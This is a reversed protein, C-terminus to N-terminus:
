ARQGPRETRSPSKESSLRRVVREFEVEIAGVLMAVDPAAGRSLASEVRRCLDAARRAGISGSSGKLKHAHAKMAASDGREVAARLGRVSEGASKAYEVIIQDIAAPDETLERLSAIVKSDIPDTWQALVRILDPIKVPKSIYDDMGAALCRERDGEMANATMAIVPTRTEAGERRRLEGTAEYGDMEPMQCDMLILAYPVRAAAELAELGDAACDSEVGIKRLQLTAVRQNVSNDEVVLVRLGSSQADFAHASQAGVPTSKRGKSFLSYLTEFFGAQRVPKTLCAAVGNESLVEPTPRHDLSTMVLIPTGSCAPDNKLERSLEFGDRGPMQMDTLVVGYKRGEAARRRVLSLAADVGDAEDCTMKWAALQRRVIERNTANDDVVLAHVGALEATTSAPLANACKVFPLRCWFTSGQGVASRLGIEGGMLEVLRKSIALGLGTGGFRRTTSADAQTFAQFLRAQVEEAIGIGTDKIEFLIQVQESSEGVKTAKLVVEGRETFKVANTLLNTLVQRIRGPDGVVHSRLDESLCAVLELGKSQARLAVLQASEELLDRVSFDVRELTLKGSEIKSFDLIDNIVCLLTEGANHITRAFEAQEADLKTGMLLGTMGIVANMPTRIEHSMNALFDSKAKALQVADANAKVLQERSLRLEFTRDMVAQEFTMNIKELKAQRRASDLMEALGRRISLWLFADEFLVWAAHELTRWWPAWAVGYVSQPWAVGRIMHDAAVVVTSTLLVAPDRYFALFALSGFVHFHTEIRGGTLHILLASYLAQGIAIVHRTRREGPRKVALYVPLSAIALGLFLAAYVHPHLRKEGGSWTWPSLLLAFAIGLAYQGVMLLGFMADTGQRVRNLDSGLLVRARAETDDDDQDIIESM